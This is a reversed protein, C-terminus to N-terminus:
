DSPSEEAARQEADNRMMENIVVAQAACIPCAFSGYLLAIEGLLQEQQAARCLGVLWAFDDAPPADVTSAPPLQRPQVWAKRSRPKMHSDMSQFALGGEEFAGSLYSECEPCELEPGSAVLSFFLETGLGIFGSLPAAAHLVCVYDDHPYNPTSAATQVVPAMAHLAAQYDGTLDAPPAGLASLSEVTRGLGLLFDPSTAIGQQTALQVLHPVAAFAISYGSWQHSLQEWVEGWDRTSPTSALSQILRPVLSPNGGAAQLELWRTSSLSLM